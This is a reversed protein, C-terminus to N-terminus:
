NRRAAIYITARNNRPNPIGNQMMAPEEKIPSSAYGFSRGIMVERNLANYKTPASTAAPMENAVCLIWFSQAHLIGDRNCAPGEINWIQKM